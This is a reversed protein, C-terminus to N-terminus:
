ADYHDRVMLSHILPKGEPIINEELLLRTELETLTAGEISASHHVLKIEPNINLENIILYNFRIYTEAPFKSWITAPYLYNFLGATPHEKIM